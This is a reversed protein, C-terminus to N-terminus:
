GTGAQTKRKWVIVRHGGKEKGKLLVKKVGKIFLSLDHGETMTGVAATATAKLPQSGTAIELSAYENLIHSALRELEDDTLNEILVAFEDGAVRGIVASERFTNKLVVALASIAQDGVAYGHEENVRSIGDINLLLLSLAFRQSDLSCMRTGEQMFASYNLLQTLGDQKILGKITRYRELRGSVTAILIEPPVPKILHDDSGVRASVMHAKVQNQTTLFVIPVAAFRENQRVFWALEFGNIDGLVVDLLILDPTYRTLAEEFKLPDSICVTEYGASELTAKIFASQDPDDEVSLVRYKVNEQRRFLSVIKEVVRRFDIPYEFIADAGARIAQVKSLFGSARCLVVLPVSKGGPLARLEQGLEYGHAPSDKLPVDVVLAEPLRKSMAERGGSATLSTECELGAAGSESRLKNLTTIDGSVALVVPRIEKGRPQFVDPASLEQGAEKGALNLELLEIIRRLKKLDLQSIGLDHELLFVCLEEGQAALGCLENMAYIGGTGNLQHFHQMLKQMVGVDTPRLAVTDLLSNMAALRDLSRRVFDAKQEELRQQWAFGRTM